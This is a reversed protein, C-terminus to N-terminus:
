FGRNCPSIIIKFISIYNNDTSIELLDMLQQSVVVQLVAEYVLVLACTPREAKGMMDFRKMKFHTCYNISVIYNSDKFSGKLASGRRRCDGPHPCIASSIIISLESVYIIKMKLFISVSLSIFNWSSIGKKSVFNCNMQM